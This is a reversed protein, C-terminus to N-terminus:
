CLTIDKKKQFYMINYRQDLMCKMEETARSAGYKIIELAYTLLMM